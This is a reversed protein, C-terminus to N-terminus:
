HPLVRHFFGRKQMREHRFRIIRAVLVGVIGAITIRSVVPLLKKIMM